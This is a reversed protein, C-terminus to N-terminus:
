RDCLLSGTENRLHNTYSLLCGLVVDETADMGSGFACRLVTDCDCCPVVRDRVLDFGESKIILHIIQEFCIVRGSMRLRIVDANPLLQLARLSKKDGTAVLLDSFNATASFLIAEGADIGIADEFLQQEAPSPTTNIESTKEFFLSLRDFTDTGLQARTKEVNKAIGLRYKATPLVLVDAYAVDLAIFAEDLLNCIALKKIIDNDTLCIM